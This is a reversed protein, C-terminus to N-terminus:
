ATEHRELFAETSLQQFDHLTARLRAHPWDWWALAQLREATRADFRRRLPRAPVGAVITYPAVERTVVAHAAVVAGTGVAVGPMVSAAHGIWVDHGLAVAHARRWAFVAEDDGADEFYRSARYSFHHSSAREVPHNTPNLRVNSALSCFKGVTAYSIQGGEMVYSYDGFISWEIRTRPGVETWAGLASEM